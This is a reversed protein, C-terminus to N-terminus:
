TNEMRLNNDYIKGKNHTNFTGDNSLVVGLGKAKTTDQIEELDGTRYRLEKLNERKGIHLVQFKQSNFQMNNSETWGYISDLGQQLVDHDNESTIKNLATTDDAFSHIKCESDLNEGIDDIYLLFLIPALVTGQIM